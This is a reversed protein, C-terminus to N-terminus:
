RVWFASQIIIRKSISKM